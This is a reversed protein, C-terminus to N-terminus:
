GRRILKRRLFTLIKRPWHQSELNVVPVERWAYDRLSLWVDMLREGVYGFVRRDKESYGSIDLRKELEELIPFLWSRYDRFADRRMIFMNFRHGSRRAMVREWADLAAQGHLEGLIQRTLILDEEHHAHAYQSYNTEIWYHRKKPLLIDTDRLLREAEARTLIREKKAGTRRLAFYRRYHCLGYADAEPGKGMRYLATLECYTPNKLSINEGEDDRLWGLGPKGAAGVQMPTYLPDEPMWYPKHSAVIVRIDM